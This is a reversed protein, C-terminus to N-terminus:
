HISLCLGFVLLTNFIAGNYGPVIGMYETTKLAGNIAPLWVILSFVSVTFFAYKFLFLIHLSRIIDVILDSIMYFTLLSMTLNNIMILKYFATNPQRKSFVIPYVIYSCAAFGFLFIINFYTDRMDAGHTLVYALFMSNFVPNLLLRTRPLNDEETTLKPMIIFYTLIEIPITSLQLLNAM